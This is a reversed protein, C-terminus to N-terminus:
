CLSLLVKRTSLVDNLNYSLVSEVQDETIEQEHSIPMEQVNHWGMAVQLSKLSTRRAKNNYHNILYLDLQNKMKTRPKENDEKTIFQQVFIYISYAANHGPMDKYRDKNDIIHDLVVADFGINNFGVMTMAQDLYEVLKETDNNWPSITFVTPTESDEEIDTYSFFNRMTEIDYIVTKM